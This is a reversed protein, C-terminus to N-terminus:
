GDKRTHKSRSLLFSIDDLRKNLSKEGFIPEKHGEIYGVITDYANMEEDIKQIEKNEIVVLEEIKPEEPIQDIRRFKHLKDKKGQVRM